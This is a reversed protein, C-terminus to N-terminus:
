LVLKTTFSRIRDCVTPVFFPTLPFNLSDHQM